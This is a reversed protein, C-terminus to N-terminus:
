RKWDARVPLDCNPCRRWDKWKELNFKRAADVDAVNRNGRAPGEMDMPVDGVSCLVHNLQNLQLLGLLLM